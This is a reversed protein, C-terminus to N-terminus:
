GPLGTGPAPPQDVAPPTSDAVVPPHTSGPTGPEPGRSCHDPGDIEDLLRRVDPGIGTPLEFALKEQYGRDRAQTKLFFIRSTQYAPDDKLCDLQFRNEVADKMAERCDVLVAQLTPRARILQYVASRDVRFKRAVDTINGRHRVLAAAVLEANLKPKRGRKKPTLKPDM